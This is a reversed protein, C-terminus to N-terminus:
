ERTRAQKKRRCVTYTHTYGQSKIHIGPNKCITFAGRGQNISQNLPQSAPKYSSQFPFLIRKYNQSNHFNMLRQDIPQDIEFSLSAARLLKLNPIRMKTPTQIVPM